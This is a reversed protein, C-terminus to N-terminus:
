RRSCPRCIAAPSSREPNVSVGLIVGLLLVVFPVTTPYLHLFRQVRRALSVNEEEFSAQAASAAALVREFEQPTPRDVQSAEGM